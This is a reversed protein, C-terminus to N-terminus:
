ANPTVFLILVHARNETMWDHRIRHSRVSQLRGPEEKWPIKLCSYQLPSGSGVGPSRRSGWPDFDCRKHRRCQCTSENGSAGGPFGLVCTSTHLYNNCTQQHAFLQELDAWHCSLYARTVWSSLHANRFGEKLLELIRVKSEEQWHSLVAGFVFCSELAGVKRLDGWSFSSSPLHFSSAFWAIDLFRM